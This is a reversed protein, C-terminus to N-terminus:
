VISNVLTVQNTGEVPVYVFKEGSTIKLEGNTTHVCIEKNLIISDIGHTHLYIDGLSANLFDDTFRKQLESIFHTQYLKKMQPNFDAIKTYGGYLQDPMLSYLLAGPSAKLMFLCKAIDDKDDLSFDFQIKWIEDLLNQNIHSVYFDSKLIDMTVPGQLVRRYFEPYVIDHEPRVSIVGNDECLIFSQRVTMLVLEESVAMSADKVSISKICDNVCCNGQTLLTSLIMMEISRIHNAMNIGGMIDVFKDEQYKTVAPLLPLIETVEGANAPKANSHCLTFFGDEFGVIWWLMDAYYLIDIDSINPTPYQKLSDSVVDVNPLSYVNQVLLIIDDNAILQMAPDDAFDTMYSGVVAGNAGSLALLLGITNPRKKREIMVKGVFKLWDTMVIPKEHAKCECIVPVEIQKVGTTDKKSAMVDLESAGSVQVNTCINSYGQFSLIKKTLCELQTGKDDRTKGVIILRM